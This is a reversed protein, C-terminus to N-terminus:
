HSEDYAGKLLPKDRTYRGVIVLQICEWAGYHECYGVSGKLSYDRPM